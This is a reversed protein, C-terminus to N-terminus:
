RAGPKEFVLAVYRSARRVADHARMLEVLFAWEAPELQALGPRFTRLVARGARWTGVRAITEGIKQFRDIVPVTWDLLERERLGVAAANARYRELPEFEGFCWTDRVLRHPDLREIAEPHADRWVFDVLVLRGGPRLLRCAEELFARRGKAGFHFGAELCHIADQSGDALDVGAVTAPLRTADAVGFRAGSAGHHARALAVNEELLDLGLADCGLAALSATTFGRGCGVDLVHLGPRPEVLAISRRALAKQFRELGFVLGPLEHLPYFGLNVLDRWGCGELARFAVTSGDYAHRIETERSEM